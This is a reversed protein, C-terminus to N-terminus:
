TREERAILRETERITVLMSGRPRDLEGRLITIEDVQSDNVFVGASALSDLVSKAYNDVDYSRKDGRYLVLRIALRGTLPKLKGLQQLVAAFVNARFAKGAKSIFITKGNRRWYHNVSPPFPLTFAIGNRPQEITEQKSM